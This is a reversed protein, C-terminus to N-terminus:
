PNGPITLFNGRLFVFPPPADAACLGLSSPNFDRAAKSADLPRLLPLPRM